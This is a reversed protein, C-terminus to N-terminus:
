PISYKILLYVFNATTIIITSYKHTIVFRFGYYISLSMLLNRIEASLQLNHWTIGYYQIDIRDM